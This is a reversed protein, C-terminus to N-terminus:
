ELRDGLAKSRPDVDSFGMLSDSILQGSCERAWALEEMGGATKAM